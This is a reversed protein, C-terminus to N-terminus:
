FRGARFQQEVSSRAARVTMVIVRDGAQVQDDGRPVIVEDGRVIAAILAGRPLDMRRIAKGAARCGPQATLELVEAAGDELSVLSLLEGTRTYRVIHDSAVARPSLVADIGLQRYIPSYDARQVICATRPVGVRKALLSAMLNIEDQKTTAVFLDFTGVEEEELLGQDTGDGHIVDVGVLEASLKEASERDREIVLVRADQRVLESALTAGVVGGGVICVRRAQRQKNFFEETRQVGEPTGILYIRDDPLLVDAGGPIFFEQSRVVGAVLTAAPFELSSLPRETFRPDSVLLQVLELRDQALDIVDSAGHSRAIRALEQAVLIRPNIVVDVGLLGYRVGETWKAWENGQVRAIVRKAGFQKAALAAILNVEDDESVAVVLDARLVGAQELVEQSAGYGVLSMVDYHDEAYAVASPNKDIAVVDHGEQDLLSLLHRGVEGLGIVVIYM